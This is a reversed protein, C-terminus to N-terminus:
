WVERVTFGGLVPVLHCLFLRVSCASSLNFSILKTTILANLNIVGCFDGGYSVYGSRASSLCPLSFGVLLFVWSFRVENRMLVLTFRIVPFDFLMHVSLSCVVCSNSIGFSEVPFSLSVWCFLRKGGSDGAFCLLFESAMVLAEDTLPWDLREM